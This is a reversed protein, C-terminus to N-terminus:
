RRFWSFWSPPFVISSCQFILIAAAALRSVKPALSARASYGSRVTVILTGQPAPPPVSVIMRSNETPKSSAM